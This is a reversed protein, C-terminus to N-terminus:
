ALYTRIAEAIVASNHRRSDVAGQECVNHSATFAVSQVKAENLKNANLLAALVQKLEPITLLERADIKSRLLDIPTQSKM